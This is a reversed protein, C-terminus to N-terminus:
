FFTPKGQSVIMLEPSIVPLVPSFFGSSFFLIEHPRMLLHADLSHQLAQQGAQIGM